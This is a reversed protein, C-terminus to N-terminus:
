ALFTVFLLCKYAFGMAIAATGSGPRGRRGINHENDKRSEPVFAHTAAAQRAKLTAIYLKLKIHYSEGQGRLINIKPSPLKDNENPAAFNSVEFSGTPGFSGEGEKRGEKM